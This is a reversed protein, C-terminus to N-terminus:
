IQIDFGFFDKLVKERIHGMLDNNFLCKNYANFMRIILKLMNRIIRVSLKPEKFIIQTGNYLYFLNYIIIQLRSVIEAIGWDKKLKHLIAWCVTFKNRTYKYNLDVVHVITDVIKYYFENFSAKRFDQFKLITYIEKIVKTEKLEYICLNGSYICVVNM